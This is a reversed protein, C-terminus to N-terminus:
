ELVRNSRRRTAIICLRDEYDISWHESGDAMRRVRATLPKQLEKDVIITTIGYRRMLDTFTVPDANALQIYHKWVETPAVHVSNTTMFPRLNAPGQLHLWDGWWQPNMLQGSPPNEILYRTAQVPTRSDVIQEVTRKKGGLIHRSIPSLSFTCWICLLCLLSYTFSRSNHQRLATIAPLRLSGLHRSLVFVVVPSYWAIMRTRLCFLISFMVLLIVEGPQIERRSFRFVVIILAISFWALIGEVSYMSLRQWELIDSLNPNSSFSLTYAWLELGSPNILTGILALELCIVMIPFSGEILRQPPKYHGAIWQIAHGSLCCSIVALGVVFSGHLNAWLCFLVPLQVLVRRRASRISIRRSGDSRNLAIQELTALLHFLWALCLTGFLEPRVVANRHFTLGWFLICCLLATTWNGGRKKFTCAFLIYTLLVSVAFLNSVGSLGDLQYSIGFLLQSLWATPVIPVGEALELIPDFRPISGNNLIWLGYEVHGWIDTHFLRTYNYVVFLLAGLTCAVLHRPTLAWADSLVPTLPPHLESAEPSRTKTDARSMAITNREDPCGTM